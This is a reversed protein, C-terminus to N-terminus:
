QLLYVGNKSESEFALIVWYAYLTAKVDMQRGYREFFTSDVDQTLVTKISEWYACLTAKVDMQRGYRKYLTSDVDLYRRTLVTEISEWYACLTTKVGLYWPRWISTSVVNHTIIPLLCSVFSKYYEFVKRRYKINRECHDDRGGGFDSLTSYVSLLSDRSSGHLSYMRLRIIFWKRNLDSSEVCACTLAKLLTPFVFVFFHFKELSIWLLTIHM